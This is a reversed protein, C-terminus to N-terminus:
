SSNEDFDADMLNRPFLTDSEIAHVTSLLGIHLSTLLYIQVLMLWHRRRLETQFPTIDGEVKIADRHLGMLVLRLAFGILLYRNMQDDQSPAFEGEMYLLLAELIHPGPNTYISLVFYQTCCGRYTKIIEISTGRIGLHDKGTGM